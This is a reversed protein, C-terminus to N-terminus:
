NKARLAKKLFNQYFCELCKAEKIEAFFPMDKRMKIISCVCCMIKEEEYCEITQMSDDELISKGFLHQDLTTDIKCIFGVGKSIMCGWPM